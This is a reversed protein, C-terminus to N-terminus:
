KVFTLYDEKNKKAGKCRVSQEFEEVGARLHGRRQTVSDYLSQAIGAISLM